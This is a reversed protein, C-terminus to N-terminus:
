LTTGNVPALERRLNQCCSVILYDISDHSMSV